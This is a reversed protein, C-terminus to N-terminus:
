PKAIPERARIAGVLMAAAGLEGLRPEVFPGFAQDRQRTRAVAVDPLRKRLPVQLARDLERVSIYRHGRHRYLWPNEPHLAIGQSYM